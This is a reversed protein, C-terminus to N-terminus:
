PFLSKRFVSEHSYVKAFSTTGFMKRFFSERIANMKVRPKKICKQKGFQPFNLLERSYVKNVAIERFFTECIENLIFYAVRTSVFCTLKKYFITYKLPM